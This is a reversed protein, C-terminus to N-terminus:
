HDTPDGHMFDDTALYEDVDLEDEPDNPPQNGDANDEGGSGNAADVHEGIGDDTPDEQDETDTNSLKCIM